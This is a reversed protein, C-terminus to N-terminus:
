PEGVVEIGQHAMTAVAAATTDPAVGACYKLLVRTALGGAAADNASAAVCYDTAIGVVDLSGVGREALEDALRRGDSGVVIGEFASYAACDFGKRVIVDIPSTAADVAASGYGVAFAWHIDAGVTDAQCHAPWTTAFDPDEGPAAFHDGPDGHWDQSAVVVDYGGTAVLTGVARAVAAGGAVPLTGGECFDNQLDVILLARPASDTDHSM